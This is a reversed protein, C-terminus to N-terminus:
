QVYGASSYGPVGFSPRPWPGYEYEYPPRPAEYEYRPWPTAEYEYSIPAPPYQVGGFGLRPRAWGGPYTQYAGADAGPYYPYTAYRNGVQYRREWYDWHREVVHRPAVGCPCGCPNCCPNCACPYCNRSYGNYGPSYRYGTDYPAYRPYPAYYPSLDASRAPGAAAMAGLLAGFSIALFGTWEPKRAGSIAFQNM